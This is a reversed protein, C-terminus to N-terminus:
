AAPSALRPWRKSKEKALKIGKFTNFDAKRYLVYYAIKAIEKALLTNAVFQNRRNLQKQHWQKIEPYYQKARIAIEAFALKLYRNGDKNHSKSRRKDGSNNAGPVLRCYSLFHKVSSFRQIDDIETFITFASLKGIGPIFLLRQIDENPILVPHLQRELQHIQQNILQIQQDLAQLQFQYFPDLDLKQIQESLEKSQSVKLSDPLKLNFKHLTMHVTACCSTRKAVFKLRTRMLDRLSRKEISIQHATPIMNMRLLQALTTADVKDTKVKAYSIAKLYKSHALVLEINNIRLLDSIWYWNMTSEVVAKHPLGIRNIYNLLDNHNCLIRQQAVISGNNDVTTVFIYNKHLDLGSYFM